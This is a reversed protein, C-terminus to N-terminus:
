SDLDLRRVSLWCFIGYIVLAVGAVTVAIGGADDAALQRFARDFGRAESQDVQWAAQAVFFGVAATIVGRGVWGVAGTTVVAHRELTSATALDLDSCFSRKIGKEIVFYGGVALTVLGGVFLTWRGLDSELMSRSIREISNSDKPEQGKMVAGIATIALVTYFAASFTYGLREGWEKLGNGRILAVSLLRWAAYLILGVALVGLLLTGGRTDVVQAVAGEPSADDDTVRHRGITYATLGMLTYVVGKALWGARMVRELWPKANVVTEARDAVEDTVDGVSTQTADRLTHDAATEMLWLHAGISHSEFSLERV